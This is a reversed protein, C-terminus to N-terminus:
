ARPRQRIALPVSSSRRVWDKTEDCVWGILNTIRSYELSLDLGILPEHHAIRNRFLLVANAIAYVDGVRKQMSLNPFCRYTNKSWIRQNYQGKLLAVWFGFMLISTMHDATPACQYVKQARVAADTLDECREDGLCAKCANENWWNSGFERSLAITVTNRLVVEAVQLPFHFSQGVAANWLYLSIAAEEKFGAAELYPHLRAPSLAKNLAAILNKTLPLQIGEQRLPM